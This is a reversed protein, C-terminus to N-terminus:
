GTQHVHIERTPFPIHFGREDFGNKIAETLDRRTSWYDGSAVWPRVVFNVSNDGLAEVAVLPAPDGLIRADNQLLDVLFQRVDRLNDEYGCGVTLDIRRTQKVSFNKISANAITGNPVIIQVNDGTRLYTTFLQIEEVTGSVGGAEVFDGVHFPKLVILLVGAAFNALSDRLAFGVALGATALIATLSTTDVGLADLAALVVVVLLLAYTMNGLFKRLTEDVHARTMLRRTQATVFRAVWRGVVFIALAALLHIAFPLLYDRGIELLNQVLKGTGVAPLIKEPLGARSVAMEQPAAAAAALDVPALVLLLRAIHM